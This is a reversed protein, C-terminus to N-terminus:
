IGIASGSRASHAIVTYIPLLDAGLRYLFYTIGYVITCIAAIGAYDRLLLFDRHTQLIQPENTVTQFIRYWLTNQAAPEAPLDPGYTQALAAM